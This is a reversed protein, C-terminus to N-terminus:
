PIRFDSPVRQMRFRERTRRNTYVMERSDVTHVDYEWRDNCDRKRGNITRSLCRTWYVKDRYGWEGNWLEEAQLRGDLYFRFTITQSGDPRNIRLWRRGNVPKGQRTESVSLEGYWAGALDGGQQAHVRGAPFVAVLLLLALSTLLRYRPRQM